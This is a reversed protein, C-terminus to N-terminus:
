ILFERSTGPLDVSWDSILGTWPVDQVTGDPDAFSFLRNPRCRFPRNISERPSLKQVTLATIGCVPAHESPVQPTEVGGHGRESIYYRVNSLIIIVYIAIKEIFIFFINRNQCSAFHVYLKKIVDINQTFTWLVDIVLMIRHSNTQSLLFNENEYVLRMSM